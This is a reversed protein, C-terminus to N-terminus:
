VRPDTNWWIDMRIYRTNTLDMRNEFTIADYDDVDIDHEDFVLFEERARHIEVEQLDQESVPITSIRVFATHVMRDSGSIKRLLFRTELGHPQLSMIASNQSFAIRCKKGPKSHTLFFSAHHHHMMSIFSGYGNQICVVPNYSSHSQIYNRVFAYVAPNHEDAINLLMYKSAIWWEDPHFFQGIKHLSLLETMAVSRQESPVRSVLDHLLVLPPFWSVCHTMIVKSLSVDMDVHDFLVRFEAFRVNSVTKAKSLIEVTHSRILHVAVRQLCMMSSEDRVLHWLRCLIRSKYRTIDLYRYAELLDLVDEISVLDTTTIEKTLLSILLQMIKCTVSPAHFTREGDEPLSDLFM